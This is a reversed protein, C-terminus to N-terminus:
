AAGEMQFKEADEGAGPQDIEALVRRYLRPHYNGPVEALANNHWLAVFEGRHRRTQEILGRCCHFAEEEDLGMYHRSALTGDMVVLPHEEVGITQFRIPDFLQVPRCVGLRFGAVDAFGLSSDWDLGAAALRHAHEIEQLTLYHHRSHHISFGCALALRRAEEPIKESQQGAELSVHLGVIAGRDFALDIARRAQPSCIDYTRNRRDESALYFFASRRPTAHDSSTGDLNLLENFTDYPDRGIGLPVLLSEGLSRIRERGLCVKGLMRLPDDRRRYKRLFDVDHTLLARFEEARPRCRLGAEALWTRLLQAYEDVVPRHLFGARHGLSETGPFRGLRDRVDPRLLEEYRTLLFYASAIIDAGIILRDKQRRIRNNGFLIPTGDVEPLPLVPLSDCSGYVPGFFGSPVIVVRATLSAPDGPRAYAIAPGIEDVAEPSLLQELVYRVCDNLEHDSPPNTFTTM